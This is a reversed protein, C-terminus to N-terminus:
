CSTTNQTLDLGFGTYKDKELLGLTRYNLGVRVSYVPQRQSVRKFQLSRHYPDWRWLAYAKHAQEQISSPLQNLRERFEKTISSKM